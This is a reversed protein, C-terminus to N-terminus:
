LRDSLILKLFMTGDIGLDRLHERVKLNGSHFQLANGMNWLTSGVGGKDNKKFYSINKTKLKTIFNYLGPKM